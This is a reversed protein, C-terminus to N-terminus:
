YIFFDLEAQCFHTIICAVHKPGKLCKDSEAYFFRFQLQFLLIYIYYIHYVPYECLFPAPEFTLM